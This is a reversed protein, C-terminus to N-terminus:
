ETHQNERERLENREDRKRLFYLSPTGTSVTVSPKPQASAIRLIPSAPRDATDFKLLGFEGEFIVSNSCKEEKTKEILALL